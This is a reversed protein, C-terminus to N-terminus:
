LCRLPECGIKFVGGSSVMQVKRVPMFTTSTSSTTLVSCLVLFIFLRNSKAHPMAGRVAVELVGEIM